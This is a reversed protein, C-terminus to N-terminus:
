SKKQKNGNLIEKWDRLKKKKPKRKVTINEIASFLNLASHLRHTVWFVNNGSLATKQGVKEDSPLAFNRSKITTWSTLAESLIVQFGSGKSPMDPLSILPIIQFNLHKEPFKLRQCSSIIELLIDDVLGSYNGLSEM